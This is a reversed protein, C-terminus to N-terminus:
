HVMKDSQVSSVNQARGRELIRVLEQKPPRRKRTVPRVVGKGPKRTWADFETMCTKWQAVYVGGHEAGLRHNQAM